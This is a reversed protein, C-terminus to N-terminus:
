LQWRWAARRGTEEPDEQSIYTKLGLIHEPASLDELICTALSLSFVLM